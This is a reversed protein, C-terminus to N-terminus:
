CLFGRVQMENLEQHIRKMTTRMGSSCDSPKLLVVYPSTNKHIAQKLREFLVTHDAMNVGAVLVATPIGLMVPLKKLEDASQLSLLKKHTSSIFDLIEDFVLNHQM